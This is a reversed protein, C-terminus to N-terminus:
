IVCFRATCYHATTNIVFMGIPQHTDRELLLMTDGNEKAVSRGDSTHSDDSLVSLQIGPLWVDGHRSAKRIYPLSCYSQRQELM